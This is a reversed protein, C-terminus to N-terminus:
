SPLSPELATAGQMALACSNSGDTKAAAVEVRSTPTIGIAVVCVGLDGTGQLGQHAGVTIKRASGGYDKLGLDPYLAVDIVADGSRTFRCTHVAAVTHPAGRGLKLATRVPEAVTCPDKGVLPSTGAAGGSTPSEGPPAPLSPELATSVQTAVQCAKHQDGRAGAIVDVRSTAGTGINVVCLGPPEENRLAQHRGIRTHTPEGSSVVDDLGLTDYITVYLTIGNNQYRCVRDDGVKGRRGQGANVQTAPRASLACPDTGALPGSPVSASSTTSPSGGGGPLPPLPIRSRPTTMTPPQTSSSLPATARGVPEGSTRSTCGAAVPAMAVFIAATTLPVKM